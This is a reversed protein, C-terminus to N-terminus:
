PSPSATPSASPSASPTSTAPVTRQLTTEAGTGKPPTDTGTRETRPLPETPGTPAAMRDELLMSLLVSLTIAAAAAVMLVMPALAATLPFLVWPSDGAQTRELLLNAAFASAALGALLVWWPLYVM